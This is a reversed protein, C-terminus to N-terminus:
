TLLQAKIEDSLINCSFARLIDPQGYTIVYTITDQTIEQMYWPGKPFTSQLLILQKMNSVDCIAAIDDHILKNKKTM